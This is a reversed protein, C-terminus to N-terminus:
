HFSACYFPAGHLCGVKTPLCVGNACPINKGRGARKLLMQSHLMKGVLKEFIRQLTLTSSFTKKLRKSRYCHRWTCFSGAQLPGKFFDLEVHTVAVVVRLENDARFICNVVFIGWFVSLRQSFFDSSFFPKSCYRQLGLWVFLWLKVLSTFKVKFRLSIVSVSSISFEDFIM